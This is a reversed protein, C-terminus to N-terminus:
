ETFSYSSNLKKQIKKIAVKNRWDSYFLNRVDSLTQSIQDKVKDPNKQRSAKGDKLLSQYIFQLALTNRRLILSKYFTYENVVNDRILQRMVTGIQAAYPKNSRLIEEIFRRVLRSVLTKTDPDLSDWTKADNELLLISLYYRVQDVM